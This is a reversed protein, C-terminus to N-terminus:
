LPACLSFFGPNCVGKVLRCAPRARSVTRGRKGPVERPRLAAVRRQLRQAGFEQRLSGLSGSLDEFAGGGPAVDSVLVDLSKELKVETEIPESQQGAPDIISLPRLIRRLQDGAVGARVTWPVGPTNSERLIIRGRHASRNADFASM